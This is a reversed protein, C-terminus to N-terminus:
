EENSHAEEWEVLRVREEESVFLDNAIKNEIDRIVQHENLNTLLASTETRSSINIIPQYTTRPVLTNTVMAPLDESITEEVESKIKGRGQEWEVIRHDAILSIMYTPRHKRGNLSVRYVGYFDLGDNGIHEKLYKRLVDEVKFVNSIEDDSFNLVAVLSELEDTREYGRNFIPNIRFLHDLNNLITLYIFRSYLNRFKLTDQGRNNFLEIYFTSDISIVM